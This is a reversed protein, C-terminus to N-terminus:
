PLKVSPDIFKNTMISSVSVNPAFTNAEESQFVGLLQKVLTQMRGLDFAGIPGRGGDSNAVIGQTLMVKNAYQSQALPTTWYSASYAPNFRALVHNVIGPHEVYDVEAQQMMPVLRKLCPSLSSLKSTRVQVVEPYDQLGLKHIYVYNVRGHWAPTKHELIFPENTAFGQNIIMGNGTVFKDLDGSYGGIFASAPVGRTILYKVYTTSLTTVYFKAGQHAAKTLDAITSLNKFRHPDYILIQPDEAELAAVGVTPFQKSLQVTSEISDMSLDPTVRAVPNGAYLTAATNLNADGPGGSLIQLKVGTSGLPGEYSYQSMTGGAGILEYLAGHDAEPLWNTQIVLPNPCVGSLKTTFHTAAFSSSKTSAGAPQSALMATATAGGGALMSVGFWAAGSAVARLLHNRRM